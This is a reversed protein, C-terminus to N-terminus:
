APTLLFADCSGHAADQSPIKACIQQMRERLTQLVDQHAGKAAENWARLEQDLQQLRVRARRYIRDPGDLEGLVASGAEAIRQAEEAMRKAADAARKAQLDANGAASWAGAAGAPTTAGLVAKTAPSSGVAGARVPMDSHERGITLVGVCAALLAPIALKGVIRDIM